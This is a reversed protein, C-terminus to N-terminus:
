SRIGLAWPMPVAKSAVIWVMLLLLSNILVFSVGAGALGFRATLLYSLLSGVIAVSGTVVSLTGTKEAYFMYNVVSYYMGQIVFGAVMWPILNHAMDFHPGILQDFLLDAIIVVMLGVFILIAFLQYTRRVVMHKVEVNGNSLQAFLWPALAKNLPETLALISMGVQMAVMYIGLSEAGLLSSVVIRDVYSIAMGAAVHPLMPLGFVLLSRIANGEIQNGIHGRRICHYFGWAASAAIAVTYSWIRSEANASVWFILGICVSLEIMSQLLRAGFYHWPNGSFQSITLFLLNLNLFLAAIVALLGFGISLGLFKALLPFSIALLVFIIVHMGALTAISSFVLKGFETPKSKFFRAAVFGHASLGAFNGLLGTLVLFSTAEGFQQPTLYRTLIPLLLFPTAGVIAYAAAYILFSRKTTQTM